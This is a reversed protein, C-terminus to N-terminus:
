LNSLFRTDPLARLFKFLAQQETENIATDDFITEQHQESEFNSIQSYYKIVKELRDMRGDHM